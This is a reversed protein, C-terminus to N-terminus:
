SRANREGYPAARYSNGLHRTQRRPGDGHEERVDFTRRNEKLADSVGPKRVHECLVMSKETVGESTKAPGFHTGLAIREQDHERTGCIGHGGGNRPLLRDRCM